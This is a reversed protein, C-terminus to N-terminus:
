EPEAQYIVDQAGDIDNSFEYIDQLEEATVLDAPKARARDRLAKVREISRNVRWRTESPLLDLEEPLPYTGQLTTAQIPAHIPYRQGKVEHFDGPLSIGTHRGFFSQLGAIPGNAHLEANEFYGRDMLGTVELLGPVMRIATLAQAPGVARGYEDTSIASNDLWGMNIMNQMARLEHGRLRLKGRVGQRLLYTQVLEKQIPGIMNLLPKVFTGEGVGYEPNLHARLEEQYPVNLEPGHKILAHLMGFMYTGFLNGTELATWPGSVSLQHTIQGPGTGHGMQTYWDGAGTGAVEGWYRSARADRAWKPIGLAQAAEDLMVDTDRMEEATKPDMFDSLMQKFIYQQNIRAGVTQGMMRTMLEKTPLTFPESFKRYMQGLAVRWFRYFPIISTMFNAEAKGIGHKWDYLAELVKKGAAQETYGQRILDTYLAFRQRQQSYSALETIDDTWNGLIKLKRLPSNAIADGVQRLLDANAHSDLVGQEIASNLVKRSHMVRGSQTHIFFDEGAFIRAITPNFLSNGLDPLVNDTGLTEMRRKRWNYMARSWWPVGTTFQFNTRAAQALGRELFIQSFDGAYNTMYYMPRPIILGTVVSTRWIRGASVMNQKLNRSVQADIQLEKIIPALYGDISDAINRAQHYARGSVDEGTRVLNVLNVTSRSAEQSHRIYTTTFPRQYPNIVGALAKVTVEDKAFFRNWSEGNESLLKASASVEDPSLHGGIAKTTLRNVREGIAGYGTALAAVTYMRPNVTHVESIGHPLVNLHALDGEHVGKYTKILDEMFGKFTTNRELLEYAVEYLKVDIASGVGAARIGHPLPSRALASMVERASGVRGEPYAWTSPDKGAQRLKQTIDAEIRGVAKEAAYEHQRMLKAYATNIVKEEAARVANRALRKSEKWNKGSRRARTITDQYIKSIEKESIAALRTQGPVHSPVEFVRAQELAAERSEVRKAGLREAIERLRDEAGRVLHTMIPDEKVKGMKPLEVDDAVGGRARVTRVREGDEVAAAFDEVFRGMVERGNELSANYVEKYHEIGKPHVNPNTILWNRMEKFLTEGNRISANTWTSRLLEPRIGPAIPMTFPLEIPNTEDMFAILTGRVEELFIEKRKRAEEAKPLGRAEQKWRVKAKSEAVRLLASMENKFNDVYHTAGRFVTSMERSVEGIEKRVPDMQALLRRASIAVDTQIRGTTLVNSWIDSKAIDLAEAIAIEGAKEHSAKWARSLAANMEQLDSVQQPLLTMEQDGNKARTLIDELLDGGYAGARVPQVVKKDKVTMAVPEMLRDVARQGWKEVIKEALLSPNIVWKHEGDRPGGRRTAMSLIRQFANQTPPKLPKGNSDTKIVSVLEEATVGDVEVKRTFPALIDDFKEGVIPADRLAKEGVRIDAALEDLVRFLTAAREKSHHAEYFARAAKEVREPEYKSVGKLEQSVDRLERRILNLDKKSAKASDKLRKVMEATPVPPSPQDELARELRHPPIPETDSRKRRVPRDPLAEIKSQAESRAAKAARVEKEAAKKLDELEKLREGIAFRRSGPGSHTAWSARGDVISQTIAKREAHLAERESWLEELKKEAAKVKRDSVKRPVRPPEFIDEKIGPIKTRGIPAETPGLTGRRPLAEIAEELERLRVEPPITIGADSMELPVDDAAGPAPPQRQLREQVRTDLAELRTAERGAEKEAIAKRAAIAAEDWADPTYPTYDPINHKEAIINRWERINELAERWVEDQPKMGDAADFIYDEKSITQAIESWEEQNWKWNITGSKSNGVDELHDINNHLHNWIARVQPDPIVEPSAPWAKYADDTFPKPMTHVTDWFSKNAHLYSDVAVIIEDDRLGLALDKAQDFTAQSDPNWRSRTIPRGGLDDVEKQPDLLRGKLKEWMEGRVPNTADNKPPRLQHTPPRMPPPNRGPYGMEVNVDYDSIPEAKRAADEISERAPAKATPPYVLDDALALEAQPDIKPLRTETLRMSFLLGDARTTLKLREALLTAEQNVLRQIEKLGDEASRNNSAIKANIRDRRQQRSKQQLDLNFEDARRRRITNEIKVYDDKTVGKKTSLASQKTTAKQLDAANKAINRATNELERIVKEQATRLTPLEQKAKGIKAVIAAFAEEARALTVDIESIRDYIPRIEKEAARYQNQMASREDAFDKAIRSIREHEILAEEYQASLAKARAELSKLYQNYATRSVAEKGVLPLDAMGPAYEAEGVKWRFGEDRDLYRFFPDPRLQGATYELRAPIAPDAERLAGWIGREPALSIEVAGHLNEVPVEDGVGRFVGAIEEKGVFGRVGAAPMGLTITGQGAAVIEGVDTQNALAYWKDDEGRLYYSVLGDDGTRAFVAGPKTATRIAENASNVQEAVEDKAIQWAAERSHGEGRLQRMRQSVAIGRRVPLSVGAGPLVPAESGARRSARALAQRARIAEGQLKAMHTQYAPSLRARQATIVDALRLAANQAGAARFGVRGVYPLDVSLLSFRGQELEGRLSTIAENMGQFDDARRAEDWQKFYRASTEELVRPTNEVWAKWTKRGTNAVRFGALLGIIPDPSKLEPLFGVFGGVIRAAKEAAPSFDNYVALDGFADSTTNFLVPASRAETILRMRTALDDQSEPAFALGLHRALLKTGVVAPSLDAVSVETDQETLGDIFMQDAVRGTTAEGLEVESTYHNLVAAAWATPNARHLWDVFGRNNFQQVSVLSQDDQYRTGFEEETPGQTIHERSYVHTPTPALAAMAVNLGAPLNALDRTLQLPDPDLILAGSGVMISTFTSIDANAAYTADKLVLDRDEVSLSGFQANEYRDKLIKDSHYTVLDRRLTGIDIQGRMDINLRVDEPRLPLSVEIARPLQAAVSARSEAVEQATEQIWESQWNIDERFRRIYEARKDRDEIDLIRNFSRRAIDKAEESQFRDLIGAEIDFGAERARDGYYDPGTATGEVQLQTPRYEWSSADEPAPSIGTAVEGPPTNFRAEGEQFAPLNSVSGPIQPLYEPLEGESAAMASLYQERAYQTLIPPTKEPDRLVVEGVRVSETAGPRVFYEELEAQIDELTYNNKDLWGQLDGRRRQYRPDASLQEIRAERERLRAGARAAPREQAEAWDEERPRAIETFFLEEAIPAGSKLIVEPTIAGQEELAALRTGARTTGAYLRGENAENRLYDSVWQNFKQEWQPSGPRPAEEGEPFMTKLLAVAEPAENERLSALAEESYGDPAGGYYNSQTSGIPDGSLLRRGHRAVQEQRLGFLFGDPLEHLPLLEEGLRDQLHALSPISAFQGQGTSADLWKNLLQSESETFNQNTAINTFHQRFEAIQEETPGTPEAPELPKEPQTGQMLGRMERQRSIRDEISLRRAPSPLQGPRPEPTPIARPITRIEPQTEPETPEPTPAGIAPATPQRARKLAERDEDTIRPIPDGNAM